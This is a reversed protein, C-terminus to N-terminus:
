ASKAEGGGQEDSKQLEEAHDGYGAGSKPETQETGPQGQKGASDEDRKDSM